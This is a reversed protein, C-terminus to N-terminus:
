RKGESKEYRRFKMSKTDIIAVDTGAGTMVKDCEYLTKALLTDPDTTPERESNEFLYVECFRSEEGSSIAIISDYEFVSFDEKICFLRDGRAILISCDMQPYGYSDRKLLEKAELIQIFKTVIKTALRERSLEEGAKLRFWSDHLYLNQATKDDPVSAVLIDKGIKRINLNEDKTIPLRTDNVTITSTTAMYVAGDRKMACVVAM